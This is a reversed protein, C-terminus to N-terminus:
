LAGKSGKEGATETMTRYVAILAAAEALGAHRAIARCGNACIRVTSDALRVPRNHRCKCDRVTFLSEYFAYLAPDGRLLRDGVAEITYTDGMYVLLSLSYPGAYFGAILKRNIRWEGRWESSSIVTQPPTVRASEKGFVEAFYSLVRANDGTMTMLVDELVPPRRDFRLRAADAIGKKGPADALKKVANFFGDHGRMTFLFGDRYPEATLGLGILKDYSAGYQNPGGRNAKAMGQAGARRNIGWQACIRRFAGAAVYLGGDTLVGGRALSFIFDQYFCIANQFADRLRREKADRPHAGEDRYTRMYAEYPEVPVGYEGPSRYMDEYLAVFFAAADAEAGNQGGYPSLMRRVCAVSKHARSPFGGRDQAEKINM